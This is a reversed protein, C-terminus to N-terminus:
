PPPPMSKGEGDIGMPEADHALGAEGDGKGEALRPWCLMAIPAAGEEEGKKEGDAAAEPMNPPPAKSDGAPEPEEEAM